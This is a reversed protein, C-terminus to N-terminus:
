SDHKRKRAKTPQSPKRAKTPQSPKDSKGSCTLQEQAKQIEDLVHKYLAAIETDTHWVRIADRAGVFPAAFVLTWKAPLTKCQNCDDRMRTLAQSANNQHVTDTHNKLYELIIKFHQNFLDKGHLLEEEYANYGALCGSHKFDFFRLIFWLVMMTHQVADGEWFHPICVLADHVIHIILCNESNRYAYDRMHVIMGLIDDVTGWDEDEPRMGLIGDVPYVEDEPPVKDQTPRESDAILFLMMAGYLDVFMAAYERGASNNDEVDFKGYDVSENDTSASSNM